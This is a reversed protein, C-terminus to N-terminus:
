GLFTNNCGHGCNIAGETVQSVALALLHENNEEENSPFINYTPNKIKNCIRYFM